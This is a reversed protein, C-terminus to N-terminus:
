PNLGTTRARVANFKCGNGPLSLATQPESLSSVTEIKPRKGGPGRVFEKTVGDLIGKDALCALLLSSIRVVSVAVIALPQSYKETGNGVAVTVVTIVVWGWGEGLVSVVPVLTRATPLLVGAFMMDSVVPVVKGHVVALLASDSMDVHTPIGHLSGVKVASDLPDVNVKDELPDLQVSGDPGAVVMVAECFEAVLRMDTFPVTTM